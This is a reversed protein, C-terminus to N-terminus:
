CQESLADKTKIDLFVCHHKFSHQVTTPYSFTNFVLNSVEMDESREKDQTDLQAGSQCISHSWFVRQVGSTLLSGRGSRECPCPLPWPHSRQVNSGPGDLAVPSHTVMQSGRSQRGMQATLSNLFLAPMMTADSNSSPLWM